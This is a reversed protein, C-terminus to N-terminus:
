HAPVHRQHHESLQRKKQGNRQYGAYRRDPAGVGAAPNPDPDAGIIRMIQRYVDNLQRCSEDVMRLIDAFRGLSAELKIEYTRGAEFYFEFETNGDSLCDTQWDSSYAFALFNAERFPVKGDIYLRRSVTQGNVLNNRYRLAIKYLGSEPVTVQWSIWEGCTQWNSGGITNLLIRDVDFPQTLASTRDFVPYLTPNSKRWSNEAQTLILEGGPAAQYGKDRYGQLVQEYNPLVEPPCFTLRAIAMPERLSTVCFIM